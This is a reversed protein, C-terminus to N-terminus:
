RLMRGKGDLRWRSPAPRAAAGAKQNRGAYVAASLALIAQDDLDPQATPTAQRRFFEDIFGTHLRGTRFEEDDLIQRFFTINTKIGAVYYESLTRKMRAIAQERTEAWAAVKALLPDYEMPVRWGPYIGSDLRVGPGTPREVQSILGPSPLFGNNPDEAYIRCEIASGRWQIDHQRLALREGAAIRIQLQVLDLGTVLETVPHEVQLRTNMELFYFNCKEDVLFELTGANYYGAARAIAIAAEGM